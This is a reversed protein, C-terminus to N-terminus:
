RRSPLAVDRVIDLWGFQTTYLEWIQAAEDPKGKRMRQLAFRWLHRLLDRNMRAPDLGKDRWLEGHEVLLEHQLRIAELSWEFSRMKQSTTSQPHVRYRISPTLDCLVTESQLALRNWLQWDMLLLYRSDFANLRGAKDWLRFLTTHANVFNAGWNKRLFSEASTIEAFPPNFERIPEGKPGVFHASGHVFSVNPSNEFFSLKRSLHTPLFADDAGLVCAFEGRARKCCFNWNPGSGLNQEQQFLRIRPDSYGKIIEVTSDTSSNDSIVLEWDQFDQALVSDIAEGIYDASQFVPLLVSIRPSM